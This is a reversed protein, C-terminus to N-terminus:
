RDEFIPEWTRGQERGLARLRADLEDRHTRRPDYVVVYMGTDRDVWADIVGGTDKLGKLIPPAEHWADEVGRLEFRERRQADVGGGRNPGDPRRPAGGGCGVLAAILCTGVVGRGRM